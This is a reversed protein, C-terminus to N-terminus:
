DYENRITRYKGRPSDNMIKPINESKVFLWDDNKIKEKISYYRRKRNYTVCLKIPCFDDMTKRTPSKQIYIRATAIM